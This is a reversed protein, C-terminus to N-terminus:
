VLNRGSFYTNYVIFAFSLFTRSHPSRLEQQKVPAWDVFNKRNGSWEDGPFLLNLTKKYVQVLTSHYKEM